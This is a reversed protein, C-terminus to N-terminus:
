MVPALCGDLYKIFHLCSILYRCDLVRVLSMEIRTDYVPRFLFNVCTESNTQKKKEATEM